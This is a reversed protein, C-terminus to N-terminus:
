LIPAFKPGSDRSFRKEEKAMEETMVQSLENLEQALLRTLDDTSIIGVLHDRDNVVPMRRIGNQKLKHIVAFVGENEKCLIVNPQMVDEVITTATLEVRDKLAIAIDRDTLIGVPIRSGGNMKGLVVLSGIHKTQMLKIADRLNSSKNITVVDKRMIQNISM